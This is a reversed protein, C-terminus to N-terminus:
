AVRRSQSAWFPERVAKKDVKGVATLPLSDVFILKKPAQRAGKKLKVLEILTQAEVVANKKRVVLATVAEGWKPDPVGIVACLAVEPHGALVDEIERPYVNFGGSVIMDKKRDLIYLYGRDDARAIDGTHLWGGALVEATLEPQNWYGEMMQPARVCIEGPEGPQVPRLDADLLSVECSSVPIGCSSFLEPRSADHDARRLLAIPYCETQGYLQSFVPGLRDLGEVLRTPSMPSGGYLLLELSSLDHRALGPHDLLVYVMTPVLLTMNLRQAAIAQLVADADFGQLLHVTGGRVLCPVIKTGGVHSIPAVCLLRPTVPLEFDALIALSIAAQTGQSRVAAKSKGTTGGTYSLNAPSAASALNRPSNEGVDDALALLDRGVRAPGITLITKLAERTEALKAGREEFKSPDVVLTDIQADRLQDIHDELSGLPHLWTIACGLAQAAIGACWSEARNSSILAVRSSADM